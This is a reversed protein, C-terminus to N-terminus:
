VGRRSCDGILTGHKIHFHGAHLLRGRKEEEALERFFVTLILWVSCWFNTTRELFLPGIIECASM